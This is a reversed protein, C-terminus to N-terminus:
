STFLNTLQVWIVNAILVFLMSGVVSYTSARGVGETGEGPRLGFWCSTTGILFGFFLTSTNVLLTQQFKLFEFSSVLYQQLTLSGGLVEAMCSTILASAHLGITLLPLMLVCAMVRTAVLQRLPSLGMAQLADVQESIMMSGLEAGLRAGVQGAVVLATMAPGLGIVVFIAVIGPLQSESGFRELLSRTQLWSVAGVSAGAAVVLPLSGIGIRECQVMLNSLRLFSGPLSALVQLLFWLFNGVEVLISARGIASNAAAPTNTTPPQDTKESLTM